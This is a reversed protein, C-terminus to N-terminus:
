RSNGCGLRGALVALCAADSWLVAVRDQQERRGGIDQFCAAEFIERVNM